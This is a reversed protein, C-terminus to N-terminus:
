FSPVPVSSPEGGCALNSAGAPARWKLITRAPSLARIPRLPYPGLVYVAGTRSV